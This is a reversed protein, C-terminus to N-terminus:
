LLWNEVGSSELIRDNWEDEFIGSYSQTTLEQLKAVVEATMFPSLLENEAIQVRLYEADRAQQEADRAQQESEELDVDVVDEDDDDVVDGVIVEEDVEEDATKRKRNSGDHDRDDNNTTDM